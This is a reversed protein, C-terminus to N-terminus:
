DDSTVASSFLLGGAGTTDIVGDMVAWSSTAIDCIRFRNGKVGVTASTTITDSGAGTSSTYAIDNADALITGYMIANDGTAPAVTATFSSTATAELMFEFCANSGTAEPLTVAQNAASADLFVIKGDDATTLTVAAAAEVERKAINSIASCDLLISSNTETADDAKDFAPIKCDSDVSTNATVATNDINSPLSYGAYASTAFLVMAAAMLLLTRM